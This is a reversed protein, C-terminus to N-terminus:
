TRRGYNLSARADDAAPHCSSSAPAEPATPSVVLMSAVAEVDPGFTTVPAGARRLLPDPYLAMQGITGAAAAAEISRLPVSTGSLGLTPWRPDQWESVNAAAAAARAEAAAPMM